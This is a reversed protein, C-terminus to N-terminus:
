DGVTASNSTVGKAACRVGTRWELSQVYQAWVSPTRADASRPHAVAQQEAGRRAAPERQARGIALHRLFARICVMGLASCSVDARASGHARRLRMRSAASLRASAVKAAPKAAHLEEPFLEPLGACEDAARPPDDPALLAAPTVM